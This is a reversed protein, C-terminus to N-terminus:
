EMVYNGKRFASIKERESVAIHYSLFFQSPTNLKFLFKIIKQIQYFKIFNTFNFSKLDSHIKPFELCIKGLDLNVMKFHQLLRMWAGSLAFWMLSESEVREKSYTFNKGNKFPSFQAYFLFRLAKYLQSIFLLFKRMSMNKMRKNRVNKEGGVRCCFCFVVLLRKFWIWKKRKQKWSKKERKKRFAKLRVKAHSLSISQNIRWCSVKRKSVLFRPEAVCM